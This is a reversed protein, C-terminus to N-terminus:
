PIGRRGYFVHSAAADREMAGGASERPTSLSWRQGSRTKRLTWGLAYVASYPDLDGFARIGSGLTEM